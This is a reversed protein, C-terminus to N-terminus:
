EQADDGGRVHPMLVASEKSAAEAKRREALRRRMPMYRDPDIFTGGIWRFMYDIVSSARPIEPNETFGDPPFKTHIFKNVYVELPIGRQLGVSVALGLQDLIGKQFAYLESIREEVETSEQSPTGDPKNFQRMTVFIEGVDTSEPYCGVTLYGEAVTRGGVRFKHTLSHREDPLKFHVPPRRSSPLLMEEIEDELDEGRDIAVELEEQLADVNELIVEIESAQAEVTAHLADLEDALLEKREVLRANPAHRKVRELVADADAGEGIDIYRKM